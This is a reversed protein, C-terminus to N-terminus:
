NVHKVGLQNTNEVMPVRGLAGAQNGNSAYERGRGASHCARCLRDLDSRDFSNNNSSASLAAIKELAKARIDRSM